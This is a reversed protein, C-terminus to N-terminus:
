LGVMQCGATSPKTPDSESTATVKVKALHNGSAARQAQVGGRGSPRLNERRTATLRRAPTSAECVPCGRPRWTR